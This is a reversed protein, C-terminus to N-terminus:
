ANAGSAATSRSAARGPRKVRASIKARVTGSLRLVCGSGRRILAAVYSVQNQM